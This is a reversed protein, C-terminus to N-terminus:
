GLGRDIRNAINKLTALIDKPDPADKIRSRVELRRIETVVSSLVDEIKKIRREPDRSLM